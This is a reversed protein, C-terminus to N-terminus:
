MLSVWKNPLIFKGCFPFSYILCLAFKDYLYIMKKLYIFIFLKKKSLM